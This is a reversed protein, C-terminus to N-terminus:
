FHFRTLSFMNPLDKDLPVPEPVGLVELVGPVTLVAQRSKLEFRCYVYDSSQRPDQSNMFRSQEPIFVELNMKRLREAVVGAFGSRVKLVYWHKEASKTNM